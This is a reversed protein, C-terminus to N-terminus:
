PEARYGPIAVEIRHDPFRLRDDGYHGEAVFNYQDRDVPFLRTETDDWYYNWGVHALVSKQAIPWVHDRLYVQDVQYYSTKLSDPLIKRLAAAGKAKAGWMGALMPVNHRPHDRMVHFQYGSALWDEVASLERPLPRGDVDRFLYADYSDDRLTLFRWFTARQDEPGLHQIVTSNGVDSLIQRVRGPVSRGVYFLCRWEPKIEAYMEANKIAGRFYIDDPDVGFVSFSVAVTM